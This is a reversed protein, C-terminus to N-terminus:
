LTRMLYKTAVKNDMIQLEEQLRRLNSIHEVMNFGEKATARYVGLQGKSEKVTTLQEWLQHATVAGSIHIIKADRIALEIWTRTKANGERRTIKFSSSDGAVACHQFLYEILTKENAQTWIAQTPAKAM